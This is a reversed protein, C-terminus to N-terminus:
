QYLAPAGLDAHLDNVQSQGLGLATALDHLYTAEARNDLDIGMVSMIYIQEEAGSPVERALAKADVPQALAENVFAAEDESVDGLTDLLRKKEAEDIKGDSKAAQLMARIMLGALEEQPPPPPMEPEGFNDLASNLSRGFTGNDPSAGRQGRPVTNGIDQLLGGLGGGGSKGGSLIGGLVDQLGGSSAAQDIQPSHKGGFLGGNGAGGGSSKRMVHGIGKAVAVGIAIRGLTKMLSM